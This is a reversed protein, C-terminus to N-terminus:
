EEWLNLPYEGADVLREIADKVAPADEKYTVGLWEATTPLVKIKVKDTKIM